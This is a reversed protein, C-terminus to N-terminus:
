YLSTKADKTSEVNLMLKFMEEFKPWLHTRIRLILLHLEYHLMLMVQFTKM